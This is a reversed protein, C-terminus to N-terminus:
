SAVRDVEAAVAMFHDAMRLNHAAIPGQSGVHVAIAEHKAARSFCDEILEKRPM